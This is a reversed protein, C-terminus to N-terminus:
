INFNNISDAIRYPPMQISEISSGILTILGIYRDDGSASFEFQFSRLLRLRGFQDRKLAIRSLAVCDDLMQVDMDICHKRVALYAYERISMANSWCFLAAILLFILFVEGHM